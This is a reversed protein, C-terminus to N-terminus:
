RFGRRIALGLVLVGSVLALWVVAQEAAAPPGGTPPLPKDPINIITVGGRVREKGSTVVTREIRETTEETIEETTVEGFFEECAEGDDDADLRNPDSPDADFEAQAEERTAFDACDLDDAAVATTEGSTPEGGPPAGGYDFDECAIGDDDADLNNPDSPDSELEAQAEEQSSFDACDLDDIQARALNTQSIVFVAVALGCLLVFFSLRHVQARHRM